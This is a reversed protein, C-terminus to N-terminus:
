PTFKIIVQSNVKMKKIERKNRDRWAGSVRGRDDMAPAWHNEPKKLYEELFKQVKTKGSYVVNEVKGNSLVVFSLSDKQYHYAPFRKKLSDILSRKLFAISKGSNDFKEPQFIANNLPTKVIFPAWYESKRYVTDYKKPLNHSIEKAEADCIAWSIVPELSKDAYQKIAFFGAYVQLNTKKHKFYNNWVLEVKLIGAPLDGPSLKSLLYKNGYIYKNRVFIKEAKPAGTEHDTLSTYKLTKQYPFFKLIWGSIYYANYETMNKYFDQWFAKNIKHEYVNIFERIVPKLENKWDSLGFDDLKDLNQEIWEWDAKEGTLSIYPIGCGSEGVYKFTKKYTHLLTIQYTTTHIKNTTSFEPVFFDYYNKRTYVSTQNALADILDEWHESGQELSDNRVLLRKPKNKKFIKKELKKAHENVHISLGQMITLWIVDPTLVLPRHEDYSQHVTGIFANKYHTEVLPVDSHEEPLFMIEKNLVNEFIKKSEHTALLDKAMEVNSVEFKIHAPLQSLKELNEATEPQVDEKLVLSDAETNNAQSRLNEASTKSQFNCSVIFVALIFVFSKKM